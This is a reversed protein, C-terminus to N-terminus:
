EEKKLLGFDKLLENEGESADWHCFLCYPPGKLTGVGIDVEEQECEQGCQPCKM